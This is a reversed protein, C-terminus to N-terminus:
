GAFLQEPRKIRSNNFSLPLPRVQMRHASLPGCMSLADQATLDPHLWARWEEPDALMVPMRGHIPSVLSHGAADCTIITCSPSPELGDPAGLTWLGAFCFPRGDDLSFGFPAPKSKSGQEAKAWEIFETALILARHSADPAVGLFKGTAKLGELRSNIQPRKLDKVWSPALGWRMTRLEPKGDPAVVTLVPDTPAINHSVAETSERVEIGLPEGVQRVLQEPGLSNSYRGCV